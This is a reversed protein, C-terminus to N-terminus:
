APYCKQLRINQIITGEVANAKFSEVADHMKSSKGPHAWREGPREGILLHVNDAGRSKKFKRFL